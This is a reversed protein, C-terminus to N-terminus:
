NFGSFGSTDITSANWSNLGMGSEMGGAAGLAGIVPAATGGSMISAAAKIGAKLLSEWMSNESSEAVDEMEAKKLELETKRLAFQNLMQQNSLAGSRVGSMINSGATLLFEKGTIARLFDNWRLKTTTDAVAKSTISAGLGGRGLGRKALSESVSRTIDRNTLGLMKEFEPSGTEGISKYYEPTIGKLLDSSFPFLVDQSQKYYPDAEWSPITVDSVNSDGGGFIDGRESKITRIFHKFLFRLLEV